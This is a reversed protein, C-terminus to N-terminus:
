HTTSTTEAYWVEENSREDPPSWLQGAFRRLWVLRANELARDRGLQDVCIDWMDSEKRCGGILEEAGASGVGDVGIINDIADGTLIQKYFNKLGEEETVYYEENRVFNYHTGAVQDFDKDVSVIVPLFGEMSSAESAAIAIADDAEEGETVLAGWTDILYQRVDQLYKPKPKTRNGKYPATVAVDNRFNGKGTLYIQYDFGFGEYTLLLGAVFTSCSQLAFSIDTEEECAAAIRYAIIDGDILLM